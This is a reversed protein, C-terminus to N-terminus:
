RCALAREVAETSYPGLERPVIGEAGLRLALVSTWGGGPLVLEPGAGCDRVGGEIRGWGIRHNSVGEFSAVERLRGEAFRWVRLTKALHPRDVYAIEVRGDGDLDAAGVPALWRFARGIHPTAAIRGEAGWVALRAGLELRSEVVIVEPAGDGDLDALRPALDEFVLDPALVFRRTGGGALSLELSGWELADGLVAHAYRDTPDGYRAAEITQAVSADPVALWLCVALWAGRAAAAFARFPLRPAM